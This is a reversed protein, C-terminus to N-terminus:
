AAGLPQHEIGSCDSRRPPNGGYRCARGSDKGGGETHNMDSSM